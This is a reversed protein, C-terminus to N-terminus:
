HEGPQASRLPLDGGDLQVPVAALRPDGQPRRRFQRSLRQLMGQRLDDSRPTVGYYEGAGGFAVRFGVKIEDFICLAGYRHAMDVCGQLFGPPPGDGRITEMIVCAVQNDKQKFCDELADLDGYPVEITYPAIVAPAGEDETRAWDHWGHYGCRIM